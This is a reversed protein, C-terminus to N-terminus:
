AALIADLEAKAQEHNKVHIGTMGFDRAAKANGEMDDLFACRSPTLGYKKCICDYMAPDPKLLHVDCSFVGGNMMPLFDLVGPNDNMIFRSYNSLYMVRRGTEKVSRLWPIAYDARDMSGGLHSCLLRIERECDPAYSIFGNIIDEEKMVGRDFEEWLGHGRIADNVTEITAPDSLTRRIYGAWNFPALVNGIDFIVTDIM